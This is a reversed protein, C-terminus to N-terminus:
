LKLVPHVSVSQIRYTILCRLPKPKRQYGRADRSGGRGVIKRGQIILWQSWFYFLVGGRGKVLVWGAGWFM